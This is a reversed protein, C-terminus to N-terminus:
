DIEEEEADERRRELRGAGVIAIEYLLSMPAALLIFTVPDTTPTVVAGICLFLVISYKRFALLQAKSLIELFVLILLVLPFQFALGVGLVMWTLLGYYSAATWLPAFGLMQNFIISARLAAPVLIFFSFTAGLFFLVFAGLCAPRLLKLERENLGPSVFQGVFYLMFPLSLAFGGGLLLYFIVSFVGLISTNILGSMEIDRGSVAFLYPWRLLESFQALFIGILICAAGFAIFSKFLTWRLDELHDLFTMQGEPEAEDVTDPQPQDIAPPWNEPPTNDPETM